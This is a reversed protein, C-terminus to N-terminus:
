IIAAGLDSIAKFCKQSYLKTTFDLIAPVRVGDRIVVGYDVLSKVTRLGLDISQSLRIFDKDNPLRILVQNPTLSRIRKDYLKSMDEVYSKESRKNKLFNVHSSIAVATKNHQIIVKTPYILVSDVVPCTDYAISSILDGKNSSVLNNGTVVTIDNLTNIGEIDFNVIVPIATLTGRDFNVRLTHIVDQSMGRAFIVCSEKKQSISELIHHVESVSEVYGDIVLTRVNSFKANLDWAPKIDFSFGCNLEISPIAAHTKEVFIKGGFGALEIAELFIHLAEEKSSDFFEKTVSVIDSFTAPIAGLDCPFFSINSEADSKEFLDLFLELTKDFSGPGIKEASLAHNLIMEFIRSELQSSCKFGFLLQYRTQILLGSKATTLVASSTSSILLKLKKALLRVADRIESSTFVENKM